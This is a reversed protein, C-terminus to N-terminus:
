DENQKTKKNDNNSQREQQRFFTSPSKRKTYQANSRSCEDYPADDNM